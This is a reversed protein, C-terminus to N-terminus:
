LAVLGFANHGVGITNFQLAQTGMATNNQGSTNASLAKYGFGSNNSGTTAPPLSLWGFGTNFGITNDIWGVGNAGIKFYLPGPNLATYGLYEFGSYTNTANTSQSYLNNFSTVVMLLLMIFKFCLITKKM